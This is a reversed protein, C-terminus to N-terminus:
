DVARELTRVAEAYIDGHPQKIALVYHLGEDRVASAFAMSTNGADATVTDFLSTRAYAKAVQRLSMPAAAIENSAGDIPVEDICVAPGSSVLTWRHLRALGYLEGDPPRVVQVFGVGALMWVRRLGAQDPRWHPDLARADDPRLGARAARILSKYSIKALVKGDLAAVRRDGVVGALNKRRHEAKVSSHLASRLEWPRLRPLLTGVTNDAIREGFGASEMLRGSRLQESRSEIARQSNGAAMLTLVSLRLIPPLKFRPEIRPDTVRHFPIEGLRRLVGKSTVAQRSIRWNAMIVESGRISLFRRRVSARM